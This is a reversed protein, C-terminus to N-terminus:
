GTVEYVRKYGGTRVGGGSYITTVGSASSPNEQLSMPIVILSGIPLDDAVSYLGTVMSVEATQVTMNKDTYYFENDELLSVYATEVGGGSPQGGLISVQNSGLYVAM